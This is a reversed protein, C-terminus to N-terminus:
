SGRLPAIESSVPQPSSFPERVAIIISFPMIRKSLIYAGHYVSFM